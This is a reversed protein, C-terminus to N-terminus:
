EAGEGTSFPWRTFLALASATLLWVVSVLRGALSDIGLWGVLIVFGVLWAVGMGLVAVGEWWRGVRMAALASGAGFGVISTPIVLLVPVVEDCPGSISCGGLLRGVAYGAVFGGPALVAVRLFAVALRDPEVSRRRRESVESPV